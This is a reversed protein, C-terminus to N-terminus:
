KRASGEFTALIIDETQEIIDKLNHHAVARERARLGIEKRKQENELLGVLAKAFLMPNDPEVLIGNKGDEILEPIGGVRTAVVPLGSAMAELIVNPSAESDSSLTLLWAKRLYPEIDKTGAILQITSGMSITRIKSKFKEELQGKGVIIFRVKPIKEVVHRFTELLNFPAKDEVLRGIYL